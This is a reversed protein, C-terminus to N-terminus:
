SVRSSAMRHLLGVAIGGLVLDLVSLVVVAPVITNWIGFFVTVDIVTHVDQGLMLARVADVGYTITNVIALVQVWEPM